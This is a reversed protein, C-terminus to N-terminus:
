STLFGGGKISGSPENRHESYGAVPVSVSGSPDLGCRGIGNRGDVSLDEL